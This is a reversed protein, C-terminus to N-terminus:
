ASMEKVTNYTKEGTNIVLEKGNITLKLYYLNRVAIGNEDTLSHKSVGVRANNEVKIVESQKQTTAM